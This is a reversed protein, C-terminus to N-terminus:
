KGKGEHKNNDGLWEENSNCQVVYGFCRIIREKIQLSCLNNTFAFNVLLKLTNMNKKNDTSM